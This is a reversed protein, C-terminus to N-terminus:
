RRGTIFGRCPRCSNEKSSIVDAALETGLRCAKELDAGEILACICASFFADGAGTTDVVHTRRAPVHGSSGTTHDFWVSGEEGLTVVMQDVGLRETETVVTRIMRSVEPELSKGFLKEAETRNCIFCRCRSLLDKRSCAVSLNGVIAYVPIHAQEAQSVCYEAITENLDIELMLARCGDTIGAGLSRVHRELMALDPQQSISGVVNGTEDMVALWVGSGGSEPRIVDSVDCGASRLQELMRDGTAGADTMSVFKVVYGMNACNVAVNRAVGGSFYEVAGLNRGVPDYKGYPFGKIDTFCTGILLISGNDGNKM